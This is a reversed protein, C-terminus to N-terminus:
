PFSPSIPAVIPSSRLPVLFARTIENIRDELIQPFRLLVPFELDSSKEIEEILDLVDVSQSPDKSPSVIINGKDNISFYGNGWNEIGYLEL